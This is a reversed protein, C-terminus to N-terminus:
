LKWGLHLAVIGGTLNFYEVREFGVQAMMDALEEQNPHQRISEVLYQYSARDRAVFEGM